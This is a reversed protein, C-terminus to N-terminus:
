CPAPTDHGFSSSMLAPPPLFTSRMSARVRVPLDVRSTVVIQPGEDSYKRTVRRALEELRLLRTVRRLSM